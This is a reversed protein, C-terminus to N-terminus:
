RESKVCYLPQSGNLLHFSRVGRKSASSLTIIGHPSQLVSSSDRTYQQKDNSVICYSVIYWYRNFLFPVEHYAHVSSRSCRFRVRAIRRKRDIVINGNDNNNDNYETIKQTYIRICAVLLTSLLNGISILHRVRDIMRRSIKRLQSGKEVLKLGNKSRGNENNLIYIEHIEKSPHVIIFVISSSKIYRGGQKRRKPYQLNVLPVFLTITLSIFRSIQSHFISYRLAVPSCCSPYGTFRQVHPKAERVLIRTDRFLTRTHRVNSSVLIQVFLRITNIILFLLSLLLFSSGTPLSRPVRCMSCRFM